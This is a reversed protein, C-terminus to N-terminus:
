RTEKVAALPVTPTAAPAAELAPSVDTRAPVGAGATPAASGCKDRQEKAKVLTADLSLAESFERRAQTCDGRQAQVVGLAFRVRADQPRLDAARRFDALAEDLRGTKIALLGLQSYTDPMDPQLSKAQQLYHEAAGVLNVEYLLRGLNYNALFYGPREKVLAELMEIATGQQGDHAMAVAYNNRALINGPALQHAHEFLSMEDVWYSSANATGYSLPVVVLLLALVLRQPLRFVLKGTCLPQVVLAVLLAGGLGPLYAYRDHVVEGAPFISVYHGDTSASAGM